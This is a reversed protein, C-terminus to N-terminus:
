GAIAGEYGPQSEDIDFTSALEDYFAGTDVATVTYASDSRWRWAFYTLALLAGAIVVGVGGAISALDMAEDAAWLLLCSIGFLALGAIMAPLIRMDRAHTHM